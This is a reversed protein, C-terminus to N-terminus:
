AEPEPDLKKMCKRLSAHARFRAQHIANGSIGLEESLLTARTGDMGAHVIRRQREPLLSICHLLRDVEESSFREAAAGLEPEVAAAVEERFRELASAQRASRRWHNRLENRAIGILWARFNGSEFDALKEYAILFVEQALDEVDAQHHLRAGLYGRVMLGYERLILRFKETEGRLIAAIV